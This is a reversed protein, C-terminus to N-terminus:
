LSGPRSRMVTWVIWCVLALLGYTLATGPAERLLWSTREGTFLISFPALSFCIAFGLVWSRRRVIRRAERLSRAEDLGQAPPAEGPLPTNAIRQLERADEPHRQFYEEVLARTDLSCEKELYLPFLDAIIEKTVNM